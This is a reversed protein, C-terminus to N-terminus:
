VRFGLFFGLGEVRFGLGEVRVGVELWGSEWQGGDESRTGM